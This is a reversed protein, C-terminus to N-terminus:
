EILITVFFLKVVFGFANLFGTIVGVSETVWVYIKRLRCKIIGHKDM